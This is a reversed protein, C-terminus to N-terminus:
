LTCIECDDPWTTSSSTCTQQTHTDATISDARIHLAPRRRSFLPSFLSSQNLNAGIGTCIPIPEIAGVLRSIVLRVFRARARMLYWFSCVASLSIMFRWFFQHAYFYPSFYIFELVRQNKEHDWFLNELPLWGKLKSHTSTKPLYKRVHFVHASEDSM